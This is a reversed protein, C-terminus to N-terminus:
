IEDLLLFLEQRHGELGTLGVVRRRRRREAVGM